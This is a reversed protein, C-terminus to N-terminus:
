VQSSRLRITRALFAVATEKPDIFRLETAREWAWLIVRPLERTATVASARKSFFSRAKTIGLTISVLLLTAGVLTAIAKTSPVTKMFNVHIRSLDFNVGPRRANLLHDKRPPFLVMLGILGM